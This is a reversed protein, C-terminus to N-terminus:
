PAGASASSAALAHVFDEASVGELGAPTAFQEAYTVIMDTFTRVITEQEEPSREALFVYEFMRDFLRVVLETGFDPEGSLMGIGTIAARLGRALSADLVRVREVVAPNLRGGFWVPVGEPRAQHHRM